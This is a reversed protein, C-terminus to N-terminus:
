PLLADGPELGVLALGPPPVGLRQADVVVVEERKIADDPKKQSTDQATVTGASLALLGLGALLFRKM